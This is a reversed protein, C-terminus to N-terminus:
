VAQKERLGPSSVQFCTLEMLYKVNVKDLKLLIDDGCMELSYM